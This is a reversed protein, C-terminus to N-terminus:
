DWVIFTSMSGIRETEYLQSVYLDAKNFVFVRLSCDTRLVLQGAAKVDQLNNTHVKIHILFHFASNSKPSRLVCFLKFLCLSFVRRKRLTRRQVKRSKVGAACQNQCMQALSSCLGSNM